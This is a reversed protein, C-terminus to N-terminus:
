RGEVKAIAARAQEIAKFHAMLADAWKADGKGDEDGRSLGLMMATHEMAKLAALLEPAAAILRANAEVDESKGSLAGNGGLYVIALANGQGGSAANLAGVHM